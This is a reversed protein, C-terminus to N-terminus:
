VYISFSLLIKSKVLTDALTEILYIFLDDFIALVLEISM